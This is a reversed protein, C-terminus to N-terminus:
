SVTSGTKKNMGLSLKSNNNKLHFDSFVSIYGVELGQSTSYKKAPWVIYFVQTTDKLKCQVSVFVFFPFSYKGCSNLSDTKLNFKYYQVM